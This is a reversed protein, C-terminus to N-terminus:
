ADGGQLDDLGREPGAYLVPVLRWCLVEQRHHQHGGEQHAQVQHLSPLSEDEPQPSHNTQLPYCPFEPYLSSYVQFFVKKFFSDVYNKLHGKM